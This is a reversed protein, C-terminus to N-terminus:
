GIVKVVGEGAIMLVAVVCVTRQLFPNILPQSLARTEPRLRNSCLLVATAGM